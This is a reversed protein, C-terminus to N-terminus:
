EVDFAVELRELLKTLREKVARRERELLELRDLGDTDQRRRKELREIRSELGDAKQLLTDRQRRLRHITEATLKIEAELQAIPAESM